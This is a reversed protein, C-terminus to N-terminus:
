ASMTRWGHRGLFKELQEFLAFMLPALAATGVIQWLRPGSLDGVLINRAGTLFLIFRLVAEQFALAALSAVLQSLLRHPLLRRRCFRAAAVLALSAVLHLGFPTVAYSDQLAGLCLALAFALPLSPRLGAYFVLLELLSLHVQPFLLLNQLYFLILGALSFLFFYGIM